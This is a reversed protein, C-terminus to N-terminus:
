ELELFYVCDLFMDHTEKGFIKCQEAFSDEWKNGGKGGKGKMSNVSPWDKLNLCSSLPVNKRQFRNVDAELKAADCAIESKLVCLLWARRRQQPVGFDAANYIAGSVLYGLSSFRKEILDFRVYKELGLYGKGSSCDPDLVSGPTTTLMSLSVCPFGGVLLDVAESCGNATRAFKKGMDSVDCFLHAHPFRSSLYKQKRPCLEAMFKLQVELSSGSPQVSNWCKQLDQCVMELVGWGSFLSGVRLTSNVHGLNKALLDRLDAFVQNHVFDEVFAGVVAEEVDSELLLENTDSCQEGRCGGEDESAFLIEQVVDEDVKRRQEHNLTATSWRTLYEAGSATLEGSRKLIPVRKALNKRVNEAIARREAIGAPPHFGTRIQSAVSAPVVVTARLVESDALWRKTVLFVDNEHPVHGRGYEELNLINDLVSTGLDKRLTFKFFHVHRLGKFSLGTQGVFNKWLAAQDLKVADANAGRLRGSTEGPDAASMFCDNLLTLMEQDSMLTKGALLRAIQGFAQDVDEHSHSVRLFGMAVVRAAGLLQLMLLFNLMYRNKAERYTNDHQLYIGLPMSGCGDLIGCLSKCLVEISTVSDKKMDECSLHITLRWGHAWNAVLHMAPRYLKECSKSIRGYGWRPIRVKAQDMGDQILCLQSNSLDASLKAAVWLM